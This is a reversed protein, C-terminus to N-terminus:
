DSPLTLPRVEQRPLPPLDGEVAPLAACLDVFDREQPELPLGAALRAIDDLSILVLPSETPARPIFCPTYIAADLVDKTEGRLKRVSTPGLELLIEARRRNLEEVTMGSQDIAYQVLMGQLMEKEM